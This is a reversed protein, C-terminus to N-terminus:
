NGNSGNAAQRNQQNQIVIDLQNQIVRLSVATDQQHAEVVSVRNGIGYVWGAISIILAFAIYIIDVRQILPKKPTTIEDPM